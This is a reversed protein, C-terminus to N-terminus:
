VGYLLTHELYRVNCYQMCCTACAHRRVVGSDFGGKVGRIAPCRNCPVGKGQHARGMRDADAISLLVDPSFAEGFLFPVGGASPDESVSPPGLQLPTVYM